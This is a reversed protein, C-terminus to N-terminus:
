PNCTIAINRPTYIGLTLISLAVTGATVQTEVRALKSADGCVKAGDVAETQGIGGLWFTQKEQFTPETKQSSAIDFRQTACASLLLALLLSVSHQKFM